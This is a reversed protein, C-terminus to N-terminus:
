NSENQLDGKLKNLFKEISKILSNLINKAVLDSVPFALHYNIVDTIISAEEKSLKNEKIYTDVFNLLKKKQEGTAALVLAPRAKDVEKLRKAYWLAKEVDQIGNKNEWRSIYKVINGEHFNLGFVESLVIPQIARKEYHNGGIQKPPNKYNSM